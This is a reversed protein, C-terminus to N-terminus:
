VLITIRIVLRDDTVSETIVRSNVIYKMHLNKM